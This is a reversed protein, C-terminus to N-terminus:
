VSCLVNVLVIIVFLILDVGFKTILKPIIMYLFLQGPWTIKWHEDKYQQPNCVNVLVIIDIILENSYCAQMNEQGKLM